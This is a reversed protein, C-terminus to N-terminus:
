RTVFHELVTTLSSDAIISYLRPHDNPKTHHTPEVIYYVNRLRIVLIPRVIGATSDRDVFYLKSALECIADSTVISVETSTFDPPM